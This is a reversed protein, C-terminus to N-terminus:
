EILYPYAIQPISCISIKDIRWAIGYWTPKNGSWRIIKVTYTKGPAGDFEAIEYSNDWSVSSAVQVNNNYVILDFDSELYSCAHHADVFSNWTLAIKVRGFVRRPIKIKYSFLSKRNVFKNSSLTGVDWGTSRPANNPYIRRKAIKVSELADVAGTGDSADKNGIIDQWWTNDVVNRKAGALLIARCGEPWIKLTSKTQQILATIGAVAPAAFSTGSLTVGVASVNTGNACIEPLERDHHNSIPNRFVSSNAMNSADDNHSGVALSNYGKHNVYESSPPCVCDPDGKWYNGAAQLITPYPKHLVLYDKYVDSNSLTGDHPEDDLHFSQSIVTCGKRVAWALAGVDHTNASYLSCSPAHGNSASTQTNKIIASTLRAHISVNSQSPPNYFEEIELNSIDDPGHEWVAVRVGNGKINMTHVDDSNAINTSKILDDIGNEDLHFIASIASYKSIKILDKKLLKTYIVPALNDMKINEPTTYKLLKNKFQLLKFNINKRNIKEYSANKIKDCNSRENIKIWIAVNHLRTNNSKHIKYYLSEHIKGFKKTKSKKIKNFLKKIGIKKGKENICIETLTNKNRDVCKVLDFFNGRPIKDIPMNIIKLNHIKIRKLNIIALNSPIKIRSQAVFFPIRMKLNKKKNKLHFINLSFVHKGPTMNVNPKWVLKKGNNKLHVLGHENSVNISSQASLSDIKNGFTLVIQSNPLVIENPLVNIINRVINYIQVAYYLKIFNYHYTVVRVCLSPMHQDHSAM